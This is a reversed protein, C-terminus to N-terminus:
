WYFIIHIFMFVNRSENRHFLVLGKIYLKKKYIISDLILSKHISIFM